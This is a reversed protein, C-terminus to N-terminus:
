RVAILKHFSCDYYKRINIDLTSNVCLLTLSAMLDPDHMELAIFEQLSSSLITQFHIFLYLLDRPLYNDTLEYGYIVTFFVIIINHHIPSPIELLLLLLYKMM